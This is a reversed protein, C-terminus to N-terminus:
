RVSLTDDNLQTRKYIRLVNLGDLRRQLATDESFGWLFKSWNILM